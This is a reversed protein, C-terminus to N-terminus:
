VRRRGGIVAKVPRFITGKSENVCKPVLHLVLPIFGSIATGLAAIRMKDGIVGGLIGGGAASM